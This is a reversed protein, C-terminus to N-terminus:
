FRSQRSPRLEVYMTNGATLEVKIVEDVWDGLWVSSQNTDSGSWKEYAALNAPTPRIFYFVQQLVLYEAYSHYSAFPISCM